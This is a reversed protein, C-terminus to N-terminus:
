LSRLPEFRFTLIRVTTSKVRQGKYAWLNIQVQMPANSVLDSTVSWGGFDVRSPYRTYTFTWQRGPRLALINFYHSFHAEKYKPWISYQLRKAKLNGWQAIEIDIENTKDPGVSADPYQFMGLVINPDLHGLDGQVVWTYTGYGLKELSMISASADNNIKLNLAGQSDIWVHNVAWNNPGPLKHHGGALTWHYGSWAIDLAYVASTSCISTLLLIFLGRM